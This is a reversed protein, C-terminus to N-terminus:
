LEEVLGCQECVLKEYFEHASPCQECYNDIMEKVKLWVNNFETLDGQPRFKLMHDFIFNLEEKTFDNV